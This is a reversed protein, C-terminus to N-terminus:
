QTETVNSSFNALSRLIVVSNLTLIGRTM